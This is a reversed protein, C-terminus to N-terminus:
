CRSSVHDTAEFEGAEEVGDVAFDSTLWNVHDEVVIRGV